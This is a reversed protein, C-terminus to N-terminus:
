IIQLSLKACGWGCFLTLAFHLVPAKGLININLSYCNCIQGTETDHEEGHVTVGGGQKGNYIVSESFSSMSQNPQNTTPQKCPQCGSIISGLSSNSCTHSSNHTQL